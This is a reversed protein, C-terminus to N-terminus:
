PAVALEVDRWLAVRRFGMSRNLELVSANTADNFTEIVGIEARRMNMAKMARAIGRRRHESQVETHGQEMLWPRAPDVVVESTGIEDGDHIARVWRQDGLDECALEYGTPVHSWRELDAPDLADARVRSQATLAAPTAGHRRAFAVSAPAQEYHNGAVLTRGLERVFATALGLLATGVGGRRDSPLVWLEPMWVREADSDRGVVTCLGVPRDGDRALWGRSPRGPQGHRLLVRPLVAPPVAPETDDLLAIRWALTMLDAAHRLDRESAVDLVDIRVAVARSDVTQDM